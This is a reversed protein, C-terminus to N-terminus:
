QHSSSSISLFIESNALSKLRRKEQPFLLITTLWLYRSLRTDKDTVVEPSGSLTISCGLSVILVSADKLLSCLQARRLSQNIQGHFILHPKLCCHNFAAYNLQLVDLFYCCSHDHLTSYFALNIAIRTPFSVPQLFHNLRVRFPEGLGEVCRQDSIFLSM